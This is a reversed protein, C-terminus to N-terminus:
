PKGAAFRQIIMDQWEKNLTVFRDSWGSVRVSLNRYYFGIEFIHFDSITDDASADNTISMLCM